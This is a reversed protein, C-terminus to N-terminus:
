LIGNMKIGFTDKFVKKVDRGCRRSPNLNCTCQYLQSANNNLICYNTM